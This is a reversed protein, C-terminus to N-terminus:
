DGGAGDDDSLPSNPPALMGDNSLAQIIGIFEDGKLVIGRGIAKTEKTSLGDNRRVITFAVPLLGHVTFTEESQEVEPLLMETLLQTMSEEGIDVRQTDLGSASQNAAQRSSSGSREQLFEQAEAFGPLKKVLEREVNLSYVRGRAPHMPDARSTLAGQGEMAKAQKLVWSVSKGVSRALDNVTLDDHRILAAVMPWRTSPMEEIIAEVQSATLHEVEDGKVSDSELQAM